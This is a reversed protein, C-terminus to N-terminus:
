SIILSSDNTINVKLITFFSVFVHNKIFLEKKWSKVWNKVGTRTFVNVGSKNM